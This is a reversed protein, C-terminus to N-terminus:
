NPHRIHFTYVFQLREFLTSTNHVHYIISDFSPIDFWEFSKLICPRFYFWKQLLVAAAWMCVLLVPCFPDSIITHIWWWWRWRELRFGNFCLIQHTRLESIPRMKKKSWIRRCQSSKIQIACMKYLSHISYINGTGSLTSFYISDWQHTHASHWFHCVKLQLFIILLNIIISWGFSHMKTSCKLPIMRIQKPVFYSIRISIVFFFFLFESSNSVVHDLM